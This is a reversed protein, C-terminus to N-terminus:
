LNGTRNRVPKVTLLTGYGEATFTANVWDVSVTMNLEGGCDEFRGTGGIIESRQHVLGNEDVWEEVLMTFFKDGNAAEIFGEIYAIPYGYEDCCHKHQFHILGLHTANGTGSTIGTIPCTESGPNAEYIFTGQLNKLVINNEVIKGCKLNDAPLEEENMVEENCAIFLAIFAFVILKKM